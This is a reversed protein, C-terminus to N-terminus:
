VLTYIMKAGTEPHCFAQKTLDDLLAAVAKDQAPNAMRHIRITLTKAEDDPEIDASAVLLDRILARAEAENKLHRRLLAVMATEARYAIMKVTDCFMKGLPLLENPRQEEPLSDITVKRPTEKRELRLQKLAEQAAQMAEVSEAKKQIGVDDDLTSTAVQAHLKREAQRAKRVAVDLKRWAPNVVRLTGPLSQVGYEILGDIDFHQMMYAFFNEQCWRSFMRSAILTPDLRQATTIVATQHGSPTLRRVETVPIHAKGAGLTTQRMCLKMRASGGGPAVVEQEIFEGEPWVDRVNKRYTLAGIRQQWLESLLSHTAGERDFVMVFRHLQPDNDLEAATPQQPVSLLLEPVIDKLLADALGETVAKSVVFFPRGVADNVWYDTTGRLCLRERSVFRRPLTALEGNYVRVHGDVYLYGAEEPDGEMWSKSLEKMWAGPEGTAAMVAIKERLTRVEPVRDLGIVKGFEGPPIHRLGEPRRIRGLAMFGLVLLIHLASYFGPALRLYRGLGSLLGNACLAPLGTLLGAMQVDQGPEFRTTACQALGVAAAVREDARTCATGMADAAQADDRSREAKTSGAGRQAHADSCEPLVAIAQRKIAKRLTSEQIGVRRAVVSPRLGEALLAACQASVEASMVSPRAVPANRFFSVSGDKRYQAVWNMLTRHAICLPAGELDVARVHGSEMLSALVFRRSKVDGQPHSFYNDGGVFYIVQGDRELISLSEGIRQAGVPFGPILSQKFVALEHHFPGRWGYVV